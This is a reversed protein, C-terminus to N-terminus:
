AGAIKRKFSAIRQYKRIESELVGRKDVLGNIDAQVESAEHKKNAIVEFIGEWTLTKAQEQENAIRKVKSQAKPLTTTPNVEM